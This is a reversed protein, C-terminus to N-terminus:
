LMGGERLAQEVIERARPEVQALLASYQEEGVKKRLGDIWGQEDDRHPSQLEEFIGRALLFCALAKDYNEQERYITGINHLTIGEGGRDGVERRIALAQEYYGLAEQKQGSTRNFEGLNNLTAGEGGRDGVERYIALAQEYYGLAKQKQGLDDYVGGLNNLAIGEGRRYGVER